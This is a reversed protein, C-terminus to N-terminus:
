WCPWRCPGRATRRSSGWRSRSAHGLAPEQQVAGSRALHGHAHRGGRQHPGHDLDALSRHGLHDARLDPRGRDRPSALRQLARRRHEPRQAARSHVAVAGARLRPEPVLRLVGLAVRRPARAAGAGLALPGPRPWGRREWRRRRALVGSQHERVQIRADHLVQTQVKRRARYRDARSSGDGLPRAGAGQPHRFSEVEKGDLLKCGWMDMHKKEYNGRTLAFGPDDM